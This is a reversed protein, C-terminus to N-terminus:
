RAAPAANAELVAKFQLGAAPVQLVVLPFHLHQCRIGARWHPPALVQGVKFSAASREESTPLFPCSNTPPPSRVHYSIYVPRKRQFRMVTEAHSLGRGEDRASSHEDEDAPFLLITQNLPMAWNRSGMSRHLNSGPGDGHSQARFCATNMRSCRPFLRLIRKITLFFLSM